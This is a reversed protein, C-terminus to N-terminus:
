DMEHKYGAPLEDRVEILAREIVYKLDHLETHRIGHAVQEGNYYLQCWVPYGGRWHKLEWPGANSM